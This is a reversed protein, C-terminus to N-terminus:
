RRMKGRERLTRRLAGDDRLRVLAARLAVADGPPVLLGADGM